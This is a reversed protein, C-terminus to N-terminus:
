IWKCQIMVGSLGAAKVSVTGDDLIKPPFGAKLELSRGNSDGSLSAVIAYLMQVTEKERLRRVKRTGDPLRLQIRITGQENAEPESPANVDTYEVHKKMSAKLALELRQEETLNESGGLKKGSGVNRWPDDAATIADATRTSLLGSEKWWYELKGRNRYRDETCVPPLAGNTVFVMYGQKQFEQITKALQFHNIITPREKMSDLNWFRNNVKRIAFWHEQRNLIFGEYDTPEENAISKQSISNLTLNYERQMAVTLVQISFNGAPDVNYSGERLRAQYEPSSPSGLMALEQQDLQHAIRRLTEQKFVEAQCLNNLAHLGCLLAKQREHYIWTNAM